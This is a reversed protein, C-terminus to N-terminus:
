ATISQLLVRRLTVLRKEDVLQVSVYCAKLLLELDRHQTTM